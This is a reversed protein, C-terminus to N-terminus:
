SNYALHSKTSASTEKGPWPSHLCACWTGLHRQHALLDSACKGFALPRVVLVNLSQLAIWSAFSGRDNPNLWFFCVMYRRCTKGVYWVSFHFGSLCTKRYHQIPPLLPSLPIRWNTIQSPLYPELVTIHHKLLAQDKDKKRLSSLHCAAKAYM